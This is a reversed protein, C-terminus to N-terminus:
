TLVHKGTNGYLDKNLFGCSHLQPKTERHM